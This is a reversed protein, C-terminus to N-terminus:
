GESDERFQGQTKTKERNQFEAEFKVKLQAFSELAQDREMQRQKVLGDYYEERKNLITRQTQDLHRIVMLYKLFFNM